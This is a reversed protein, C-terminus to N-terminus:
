AWPRPRHEHDHTREQDHTHDHGHTYGHERHDRDRGDAAQGGVTVRFKAAGIGSRDVRDSSVHVGDLGLSDVAQSLVEFPVGADVLAGAIMDGSAGSFCDLYLIRSM